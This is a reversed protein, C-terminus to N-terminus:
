NAVRYVKILTGVLGNFELSLEPTKDLHRFRFLVIPVVADIQENGLRARHNALRLAAGADRHM